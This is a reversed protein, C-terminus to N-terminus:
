RSKGSAGAIRRPSFSGARGKQAGDTGGKADSSIGERATKVRQIVEGEIPLPLNQAPDIGLEDCVPLLKLIFQFIKEQNRRSGPDIGAIRRIDMESM